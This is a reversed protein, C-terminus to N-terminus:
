KSIKSPLPPPRPYGRFITILRFYLSTLSIHCVESYPSIEAPNWCFFRLRAISLISLVSANVCAVLFAVFAYGLLNSIWHLFPGQSQTCALLGQQLGLPKLALELVIWGFALLLPNFGVLRTLLAGFFTYLAPVITLLALSQVTPSIVGISGTASFFYFCIGWFAGALAAAIPRLIRIALFLPLLGFWAIWSYGPLGVSMAM